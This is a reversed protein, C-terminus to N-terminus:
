KLSESYAKLANVTEKLSTSARVINAGTEDWAIYLYVEGLAANVEIPIVTIHKDMWSDYGRFDNLKMECVGIFNNLM